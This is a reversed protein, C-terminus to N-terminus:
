GRLGSEFGSIYEGSLLAALGLSLGFPENLDVGSQIIDGMGSSPRLSAPFASLCASIGATLNQKPCCQNRGASTCLSFRLDSRSSVFIVSSTSVRRIRLRLWIPTRIIGGGLCILWLIYRM